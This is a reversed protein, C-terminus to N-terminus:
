YYIVRQITMEEPKNGANFRNNKMYRIITMLRNVHVPFYMKQTIVEINSVNHLKNKQKKMACVLILSQM